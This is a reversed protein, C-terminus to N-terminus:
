YCVSILITLLVCKNFDLFDIEQEQRRKSVAELIGERPSRQVIRQLNEAGESRQKPAPPHPIRPRRPPHQLARPCPSPSSISLHLM